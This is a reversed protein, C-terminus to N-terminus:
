GAAAAELTFGPGERGTQSVPEAHGVGKSPLGGRIAGAMILRSIDGVHRLVLAPNKNRTIRHLASTTSATEHAVTVGAATPPSGRVRAGEWAARRTM